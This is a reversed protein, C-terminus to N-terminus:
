LFTYQLMIRSNIISYSNLYFGYTYEIEWSIITAKLALRMDNWQCKDKSTNIRLNVQAQSFKNMKVILAFPLFQM